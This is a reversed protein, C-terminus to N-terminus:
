RRIELLCHTDCPTSNHRQIKKQSTIISRFLVLALEACLCSLNNRRSVNKQLFYQIRIHYKPRSYFFIIPYGECTSWSLSLSFFLQSMFRHGYKVGVEFECVYIIYELKHAPKIYIYTKVVEHTRRWCVNIYIRTRSEVVNVCIYEQEVCTRQACRRSPWRSFCTSSRWSNTILRHRTSSPTPRKAPGQWVSVESIRKLQFLHYTIIPQPLPLITAGITVGIKAQQPVPIPTDSLTFHVLNPSGFKTLM